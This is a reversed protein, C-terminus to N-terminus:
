LLNCHLHPSNVGWWCLLVNHWSKIVAGVWIAGGTVLSQLPIPVLIAVPEKGVLLKRNGLVKLSTAYVQLGMATGASLYKADGYLGAVALLNYVMGGQLVYVPVVVGM